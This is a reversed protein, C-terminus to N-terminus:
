GHTEEVQHIRIFERIAETQEINSYGHLEITDKGLTLKVTRDKHHLLWSALSNMLASIAAPALKAVLSGLIIAGVGMEGPDIKEKRALDIREIDLEELESRLQDTDDSLEDSYKGPLIEINISLTEKGEPM